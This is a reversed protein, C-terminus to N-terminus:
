SVSVGEFPGEAAAVNEAPNFSTVLRDGSQPTWLSSADTSPVATGVVEVIYREIEVNSNIGVGGTTEQSAVAGTADYEVVSAGYSFGVPSDGSVGFLFENETLSGDSITYVPGDESTTQTFDEAFPLTDAVFDTDPAINTFQMTVETRVLQGNNFFDTTTEFVALRGEFDSPVTIVAGGNDEVLALTTSTIIDEIDDILNDEAAVDVVREIQGGDGFNSTYIQAFSTEAGEPYIFDPLANPEGEAATPDLAWSGLETAGIRALFDYYFYSDSQDLAAFAASLDAGEPVLIVSTEFVYSPEGSGTVNDVRNAVTYITGTEDPNTVVTVTNTTQDLTAAAIVLPDITVPANDVTVAVDELDVDDVGVVRITSVANAGGQETDALTAIVDTYSGDPAPVFNLGEFTFRGNQSDLDIAIADESRNFDAITVFLGQVSSTSNGLDLAFTDAGAGGNMSITGFSLATDSARLTDDGGEGLLIGSLGRDSPTAVISDDGEGARVEGTVAGYHITDNGDGTDIDIRTGATSVTDDGAGTRANIDASDAAILVEDNGAGGSIATRIADVSITDNGGDGQLSHDQGEALIMDDGNRGDVSGREGSLTVTDNGAGSSVFNNSGDVTFVDDGSEGYASNNEGDITFVDNGDEGYGSNQSGSLTFSDDDVGGYGSNHSGNIEFTDNGEGGYAFSFTGNQVLLDDGRGGELESSDNGAGTSTLTDDGGLGFARQEGDISLVDPGDTGNIINPNEPEPPLPPEPTDPESPPDTDDDSLVPILLTLGLLSMLVLASM